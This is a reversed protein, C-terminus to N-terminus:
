IKTELGNRAVQLAWTRTVVPTDVVTAGVSLPVM